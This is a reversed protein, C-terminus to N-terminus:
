ADVLNVRGSAADITKEPIASEIEQRALQAFSARRRTIERLLSDRRWEASSILRNFNAITDLLRAATRAVVSDLSMKAHALLNNVQAIANADGAAWRKVLDQGAANTLKASARDLQATFSRGPHLANVDILPNLIKLLDASVESNIFNERYRRWRRHEWILDVIDRTWMEEFIDIPKLRGTVAALLENYATANEGELLPPPGFHPLRSTTPALPQSPSVTLPQQNSINSM